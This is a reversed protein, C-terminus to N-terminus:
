MKVNKEPFNGWLLFRFVFFSVGLPPSGSNEEDFLQDLDKYSAQLGESTFLNETLIKGNEDSDDPEKKIDAMQMISSSSDIDDTCNNTGDAVSAGIETKIKIDHMAGGGGSGGGSNNNMGMASNHTQEGLLSKKTLGSNSQSAYQTAYLDFRNSHQPRHKVKVDENPKYRKVPHNM